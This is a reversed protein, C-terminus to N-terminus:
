AGVAGPGQRDTEVIQRITELAYVALLTHESSEKAERIDEM